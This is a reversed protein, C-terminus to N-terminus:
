TITQQCCSFYNEMQGHVLDFWRKEEAMFEYDREQFVKDAFAAKSPLLAPAAGGYARNRGKNLADMAPQTSGNVQNKAEAFILLVDAYRMLYFDNGSGFEGPSGPDRFKGFTFLGRETAPTGDGDLDIDKTVQPIVEYETGDVTLKDVPTFRKRNIECCTRFSCRLM